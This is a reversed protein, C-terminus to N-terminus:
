AKGNTKGTQKKVAEVYSQYDALKGELSLQNSYDGYVTIKSFDYPMVRQKYQFRNLDTEGPLKFAIKEFENAHLPVKNTDYPYEDSAIVCEVKIGLPHSDDRVGDKYAFYESVNLVLLEWYNFVKPDIQVKKKLQNLGKLSM